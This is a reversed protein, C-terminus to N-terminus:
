KDFKILLHLLISNFYFATTKNSPFLSITTKTNRTGMIHIPLFILQASYFLGDMGLIWWRDWIATV